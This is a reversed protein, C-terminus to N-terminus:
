AGAPEEEADAEREARLASVEARVVARGIQVAAAWVVLWGVVGAALARVGVEFPEIRAGLSAAGVLLFALLAGWATAHRVHAAMRPHASVSIGPRGVRGAPRPRRSM